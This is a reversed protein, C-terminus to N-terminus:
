VACAMLDMVGIGAQIRAETSSAARGSLFTVRLSEACGQLGGHRACPAPLRDVLECLTKM